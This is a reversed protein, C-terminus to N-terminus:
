PRKSKNKRRSIPDMKDIFRPSHFYVSLFTHNKNHALDCSVYVNKQLTLSPWLSGSPHTGRNSATIIHGWKHCARGALFHQRTKDLHHQEGRKKRDETEDQIRTVWISSKKDARGTNKGKRSKKKETKTNQIVSFAHKRWAWYSVGKLRIPLM